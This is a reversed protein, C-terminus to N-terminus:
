DSEDIEAAPLPASDIRGRFLGANVFSGGTSKRWYPRSLSSTRKYQPGAIARPVDILGKHFRKYTWRGHGPSNNQRHWEIQLLAMLFEVDEFALSFDLRTPYQDLLVPMIADVIMNSSHYAGPGLGLTDSAIVEPPALAVVAPSSPLQRLDNTSTEVFYHHLPQHLLAWILDVNEAAWAGLVGAYLLMTAPLRRLAEDHQWAWGSLGGPQDAVVRFMAPWPHNDEAQGYFGGAAIAGALPQGWQVVEALRDKYTSPDDMHFRDLRQKLLRAERLLVDRLEIKTRGQSILRKTTGVIASTKLPQSPRQAVEKLTGTLEDFFDDASTVDMLMARSEDVLPSLEQDFAGRMGLFCGYLHGAVRIVDKRLCHDSRSHYGYVSGYEDLVKRLWALWGPEYEGLEQDTNRLNAQQYDGHLKIITCKTHQIPIM